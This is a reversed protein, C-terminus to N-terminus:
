WVRLQGLDYGNWDLIERAAALRDAPLAGDRNLIFGFSGSPTGVVLTRLDADAWLVWWPGAFGNVAFRGPGAPTLPGSSQVDSGGLCLRLTAQLGGPGPSFEAGGPKCGGDAPGFAAVQVWRGELRGTQLVASSYIPKAIDRYPRTPPVPAACAALLLLVVILRHM